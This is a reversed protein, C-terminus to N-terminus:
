EYQKLITNIAHIRQEAITELSLADALDLLEKEQSWLDLLGTEPLEQFHNIELWQEYTTGRRYGLKEEM